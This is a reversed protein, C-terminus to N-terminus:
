TRSMRHLDYERSIRNKDKEAAFRITLVVAEELPVIRYQMLFFDELISISVNSAISYALLGEQVQASKIIGEHNKQWIFFNNEEDRGAITMTLEKPMPKFETDVFSILEKSNLHSRPKLMIDFFNRGIQAFGTMGYFIGPRLQLIKTYNDTIVGNNNARKDAAIVFERNNEVACIVISM